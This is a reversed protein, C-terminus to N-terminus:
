NFCAYWTKRQYNNCGSPKETVDLFINTGKPCMKVRGTMALFPYPDSNILSNIWISHNGEKDNISKFLYKWFGSSDHASDSWNRPFPSSNFRNMEIPFISWDHILSLIMKISYSATWIFNTKFFDNACLYDNWDFIAFMRVVVTLDYISQSNYRNQRLRLQISGAEPFVMQITLEASEINPFVTQTM